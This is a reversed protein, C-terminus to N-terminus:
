APLKAKVLDALDGANELRKLDFSKFQVGFHKEVAVILEIHTLSDWGEIDAASTTQTITLDADGFVECFIPTMEQLIDRDM